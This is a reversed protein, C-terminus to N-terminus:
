FSCEIQHFVWNFVHIVLLDAFTYESENQALTNETWDRETLTFGRCRCASKGSSTLVSDMKGARPRILLSPGPAEWRGADVVASSLSLERCWLHSLGSRAGSRSLSVNESTNVKWGARRSSLRQSRRAREGLLARQECKACAVCKKRPSDWYGVRKASQNSNLAYNLGTILIQSPKELIRMTNSNFYTTSELHTCSQKKGM